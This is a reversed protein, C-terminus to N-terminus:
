TAVEIREGMKSLCDACTPMREEHGIPLTVELGCLTKSKVANGDRWTCFCWVITKTGDANRDWSKVCLVKKSLIVEGQHRTNHPGVVRSRDLM